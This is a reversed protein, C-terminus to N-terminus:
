IQFDDSERSDFSNDVFFHVFRRKANFYVVQFCNFFQNAFFQEIFVFLFFVDFCYTHFVNFLTKVAILIFVDIFHISFFRDAFITNFFVFQIFAFRIEILM